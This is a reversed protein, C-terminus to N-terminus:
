AERKTIGWYFLSFSYALILTLSKDIFTFVLCTLFLSLYTSFGFLQFNVILYGLKKSVEVPPFIFLYLSGIITPILIIMMATSLLSIFNFDYQNYLRLGCVLGLACSILTNAFIIESYGNLIGGIANICFGAAIGYVPGFLIGCLVASFSILFVPIDISKLVYSLGFNVILILIFSLIIRISLFRKKRLEM